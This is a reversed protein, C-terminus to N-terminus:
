PDGSIANQDALKGERRANGGVMADPKSTEGRFRVMDVLNIDGRLLVRGEELKGSMEDRMVSMALM